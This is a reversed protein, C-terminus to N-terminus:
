VSFDPGKSTKMNTGRRLIIGDEDSIQRGLPCMDFIHKSFSGTYLYIYTYIYIALAHKIELIQRWM